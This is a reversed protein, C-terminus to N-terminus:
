ICSYLQMFNKHVISADFCKNYNKLEYYRLLSSAILRIKASRSMYGDMFIKFYDGVVFNEQKELKFGQALM